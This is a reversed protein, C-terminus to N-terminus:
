RAPRTGRQAKAKLTPGKAKAGKAASSKTKASKTKASKTKASKTKASKTRSLAAKSKAGSKSTAKAKAKAKVKAKKKKKKPPLLMTGRCNKAGCRCAFIVDIDPPDSRDREIMYDYSLEEGPQITRIAEIFVRNDDILSECNPDCSHNIWRAENGINGGDIVVRNNVTFLFTHNDDHAKNEYRRDAEAHSIREGIYEIVRRGKPIRRTAFVGTGHIPSRRVRYLPKATPTPM